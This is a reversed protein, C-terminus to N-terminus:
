NSKAKSARKVDAWPERDGLRDGLSLHIVIARPVTPAEETYEPADARLGKWKRARWGDWLNLLLALLFDRLNIM